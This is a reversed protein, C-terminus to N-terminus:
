KKQSETREDTLTVPELTSNIRSRAAIADGIFSALITVMRVLEAQDAESLDPAFKFAVWILKFAVSIVLGWLVQSRYWPITNLENLLKDYDRIFEKIDEDARTIVPPLTAVEPAAEEYLELALEAWDIRMDLHEIGPREYKEMVIKAADRVTTAKKVAALAGREPGVLERFVM